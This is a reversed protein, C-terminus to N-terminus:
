IAYIIAILSSQDISRSMDVPPTSTQSLITGQANMVTYCDAQAASAALLAAGLPALLRVMTM